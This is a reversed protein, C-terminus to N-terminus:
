RASGRLEGVSMRPGGLASVVKLRANVKDQDWQPLKDLVEDDLDGTYMPDGDGVRGDPFEIMAPLAYSLDDRHPAAYEASRDQCLHHAIDILVARHEMGEPFKYAFKQPFPNSLPLNKGIKERDVELRRMRGQVLFDDQSEPYILQGSRWEGKGFFDIMEQFFAATDEVEEKSPTKEPITKSYKNPRMSQRRKDDRHRKTVRKRASHLDKKKTPWCLIRDHTLEELKVAKARDLKPMKELMEPDKPVECSIYYSHFTRGPVGNLDEEYVYTEEDDVSDFGSDLSDNKLNATTKPPVAAATSIDSTKADSEPAAAAAVNDDDDITIVETDSDNGNGGSNSDVMKVVQVEDDDTITTSSVQPEQSSGVEAPRQHNDCNMDQQLLM